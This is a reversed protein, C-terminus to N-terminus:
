SGEEKKEELLDIAKFTLYKKVQEPSMTKNYKEQIFYSLKREDEENKDFIFDYKEFVERVEEKNVQRKKEIYGNVIEIKIDNRFKFRENLLNILFEAKEYDEPINIILRLFDIGAKEKKQIISDLEKILLSDSTFIADKYGYKKTIYRQASINEIFQNKYRKKVREIEYFGKKEEEGFRFRSFSGVYFIKDDINTNIHYHGFYIQGKCIKKLESTTFVPPKKREQKNKVKKDIHRVADTMVEQIIGHGFVYDYEKDKSFFSKYYENKDNIYEEPLYLVKFDEFLEEEEVTKIVKFDLNFSSPMLKYIDDKLFDFINYQENEHSKTGYVVRVKDCHSILLLMYKYSLQIYEEYSYIKRDFFDGLIICYDYQKDELYNELFKYEKYTQNYDQAKIHIDALLLGNM